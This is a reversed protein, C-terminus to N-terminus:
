EGFHLHTPLIKVLSHINLTTLHIHKSSVSVTVSPLNSINFITFFVGGLICKATHPAYEECSSRKGASSDAKWSKDSLRQYICKCRHQYDETNIFVNTDMNIIKHTSLYIRSLCFESVYVMFEFHISIM